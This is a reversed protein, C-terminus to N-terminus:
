RFLELQKPEGSKVLLQYEWLGACREGRSRKNVEHSGFRPKRMHRLQASISAAPDGTIEEIEALTRWRGDKMTKFIRWYQPVLRLNDEKPEYVAGNFRM